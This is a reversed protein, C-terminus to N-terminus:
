PQSWLSASCIMRGCCISFCIGAVVIQMENDDDPLSDCFLTLDVNATKMFISIDWSAQKDQIKAKMNEITDSPEVELICTKSTLTKMFIQM